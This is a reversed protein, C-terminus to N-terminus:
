SFSCSLRPPFPQRNRGAVDRALAERGHTRARKRRHTSVSYNPLFQVFLLIQSSISNPIKKPRNLVVLQWQPYFASFSHPIFSFYRNTIDPHVTGKFWTIQACISAVQSPPAKATTLWIGRFYLTVEHYKLPTCSVPKTTLLWQLGSM